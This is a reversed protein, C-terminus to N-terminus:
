RWAEGYSRAPRYGGDGAPPASGTGRRGRAPHRAHGARVPAPKRAPRGPADRPLRAGRGSHRSSSRVWAFAVLALTVLTRWVFWLGLELREAPAAGTSWRTPTCASPTARRGRGVLYGPYDLLRRPRSSWPRSSCSPLSCWGAGAGVAALAAALQWAGWLPALTPKLLSLGLALGSSLRLGVSLGLLGAALVHCQGRIVAMVTPWATLVLVPWCARGLASLGAHTAARWTGWALVALALLTFVAFGAPLPLWGLPAVM